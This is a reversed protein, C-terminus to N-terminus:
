IVLRSYTQFLIPIVDYNPKGDQHLGLKHMIDATGEEDVHWSLAQDDPSLARMQHQILGAKERPDFVDGDYGEFGGVLSSIVQRMERIKQRDFAQSNLVNFHIQTLGEVFSTAGQEEVAQHFDLVEALLGIDEESYGTVDRSFEGHEDVLMMRDGQMYTGIGPRLHAMNEPSDHKYHESIVEGTEPDIEQIKTKAIKVADAGTNFDKESQGLVRKITAKEDDTLDQSNEAATLFGAFMKMPSKGAFNLNSQDLLRNVIQPKGPVANILAEATGIARQVIRRMEPTKVGDEGLLERLAGITGKSSKLENFRDQLGEITALDEAKEDEKKYESAEENQKKTKLRELDTTKAKEEVLMAERGEPTKPINPHAAELETLKAKSQPIEEEDRREVDATLATVSAESGKITEDNKTVEVLDAIRTKLDPDEADVTSLQLDPEEFLNRLENEAVLCEKTADDYFEQPCVDAFHDGVFQTLRTKRQDPTEAAESSETNVAVPKTKLKPANTETTEPQYQPLVIQNKLKHEDPEETVQYDPQERQQELQYQYLIDVLQDKTKEDKPELGFYDWDTGVKLSIEAWKEAKIHESETVAYKQLRDSKRIQQQDQGAQVQDKTREKKPINDPTNHSQDPSTSM